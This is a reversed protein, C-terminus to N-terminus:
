GVEVANYLWELDEEIDDLTTDSSSSPLVVFDFISASIKSKGGLAKDIFAKTNCIIRTRKNLDICEEITDGIGGASLYALVIQPTIYANIVNKHEEVHSLKNSAYNFANIITDYVKEVVGSQMSAVKKKKMERIEKYLKKTEKKLGEIFAMNAKMKRFDSFKLEATGLSKMYRNVDYYMIKKPNPASKSPRTTQFIYDTDEELRGTIHKLAMLIRGDSVEATNIVNKKGPLQLIAFNDRIINVHENMLTVVGFTKEEIVTGDELTVKTKNNEDGPRLGTHYGVMVILAKLKLLQDSSNFDKEVKDVINNWDEIMSAMQLTKTRMNETSTVFHDVFGKLYGKSDVDITLKDPLVDYFMSPFDKEPLKREEIFNDIKYNRSPSDLQEFVKKKNVEDYIYDAVVAKNDSITQRGKDLYYEEAFNKWNGDKKLKKLFEEKEVNNSLKKLYKTLKDFDYHMDKIFDDVVKKDQKYIEPAQKLSKKLERVINM